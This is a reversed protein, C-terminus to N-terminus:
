PGEYLWVDSLEYRHKPIIDNPLIPYPFDAATPMREKFKADIRQQETETVHCLLAGDRVIVRIATWEALPIEPPALSKIHDVLRDITVKIPVMHEQKVPEWSARTKAGISQYRAFRQGDTTEDTFLRIVANLSRRLETESCYGAHRTKLMSFVLAALGDETM